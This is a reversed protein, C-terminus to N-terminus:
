KVKDKEGILAKWSPTQFICDNTEQEMRQFLPMPLTLTLIDDRFRKRMVERGDIDLMDLVARPSALDAEAYTFAAISNSDAGQPVRVPDTGQMVSGALTVLGALM